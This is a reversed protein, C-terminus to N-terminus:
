AQRVEAKQIRLKRIDADSSTSEAGGGKKGGQQKGGKPQKPQKPQKEGQQQQQSAAAPQQVAQQSAAEASCPCASTLCSLLDAATPLWGLCVGAVPSGLCHLTAM